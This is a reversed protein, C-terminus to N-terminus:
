WGEGAGAGWEALESGTKDQGDFVVHPATRVADERRQAIRSKDLLCTSTVAERKGAQPGFSRPYLGAGADGGARNTEQVDVVLRKPLYGL